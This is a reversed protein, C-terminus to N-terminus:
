QSTSARQGERRDFRAAMSSCAAPARLRWRNRGCGTGFLGGFPVLPSRLSCRGSSFINADVGSSSLFNRDIVRPAGSSM